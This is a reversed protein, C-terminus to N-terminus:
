AKPREAETKKGTKYYAIGRNAYIAGNDPNLKLAYTFDPISKSCENIKLYCSARNQYYAYVLGFDEGNKQAYKIALSYEAIAKQFNNENQYINGLYYCIEDDEEFIAKAKILYQKLISIEVPKNVANIDMQGLVLRSTTMFFILFLNFKKM